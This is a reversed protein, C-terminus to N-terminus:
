CIVWVERGLHNSAAGGLTARTGGLVDLPMVSRINGGVEGREVRPTWRLLTAASVDPSERRASSGTLAAGRRRRKVWSLLDAYSTLMRLDRENVSDVLCIVGGVLIPWAGGGM